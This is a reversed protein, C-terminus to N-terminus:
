PKTIKQLAERHVWEYGGVDDAYVIRIWSVTKFQNIMSLDTIIAFRGNGPPSRKIVLDGVYLDNSNSKKLNFSEM